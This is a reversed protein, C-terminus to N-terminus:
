RAGRRRVPKMMRSAVAVLLVVATGVELWITLNMPLSHASMPALSYHALGAFGFAGYLAIVILGALQNGRRVLFYGALGVTTVSLWAAWVRAPSLLAPMNPYADLFVANHFHHIFSAAAYALLPTILGDVRTTQRGM